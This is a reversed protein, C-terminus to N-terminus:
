HFPDDDFFEEFEDYRFLDQLLGGRLDDSFYDMGNEIFFPLLKFKRKLILTCLLFPFTDIDEYSHEEYSHEDNAIGLAQPYRQIWNELKQKHQQDEIDTEEIQQLVHYLCHSITQGMQYSSCGIKQTLKDSSKEFSELDELKEILSSM